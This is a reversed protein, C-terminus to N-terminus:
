RGRREGGLRVRKRDLKVYDKDSEKIEIFQNPAVNTFTQGTGSAPWRVDIREIRANSGLGIHQEMPNAGFSGSNGV